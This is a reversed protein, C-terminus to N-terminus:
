PRAGQATLALRSAGTEGFLLLGENAPLVASLAKGDDSRRLAFTRADDASVLITGDSGVLVVRGDGLVRGGMLTAQTGAQPSTWSRGGDQSRHIHGRLGFALVGGGKLRLAGFYSGRYPSALTKWARGGDDSRLLTGQEGALYLKGDAGGAVANLHMDDALVKRARWTRGGDLTELFTGYAGVAFGRRADAFWVDLLPKKEEPEFRTQEWSKGADKTLLVVGDHGVAWGREADLFFVATLTSRASSDARSWTRGGDDSYLIAGREGVCVARPGAQAAALLLLNDARVPPAPEARAGAQLVLCLAASLLVPGSSSRRAL